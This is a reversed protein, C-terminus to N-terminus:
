KKNRRFKIFTFSFIIISFIWLIIRFFSVRNEDMFDDIIAIVPVAILMIIWIVKAVKNMTPSSFFGGVYPDAMVQNFKTFEALDSIFEGIQPFKVGNAEEKKVYNLYYDIDFKDFGDDIVKQCLDISSQIMKEKERLDTIQEEMISEISAEKNIISAINEISLDMKRFLIIEKLRKVDEETYDRYKSEKEREPEILGKKEYFRINSITLGTKEAVEGIRM